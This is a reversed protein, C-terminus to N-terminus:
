LNTGFLPLGKEAIQQRLEDSIFFAPVQLDIARCHVAIVAMAEDRNRYKARTQFKGQGDAVRWKDQHKKINLWPDRTNIRTIDVQCDFTKGLRNLTHPLARDYYHRISPLPYGYRLEQIAGTPWAIGAFGNESAHILMLKAALAPWEKKFPANAVQGWASTDYGDRKGSQHWDSQLEEIFLLKRGAMDTRTTTRIHTLVNHDYFHAGFFVRQHDPLCILWERYDHGGFLTLHDFRTHPSTGSRIDFHERAHRDAALKADLSSGFFLPNHAPSADRNPVARGYPDLAFWYKNLAMHHDNHLTKVVGVRYNYCSDVYRQICLCGSDLRLAARYVAQHPMRRAMECFNLGGDAGWIQETSLELRIHRFSLHKLLQTKSVVKEAAQQQLYAHVGSWQIEERCVGHQMMNTLTAHWQAATARPQPLAQLRTRLLSFLHQPASYLKASIQPQNEILRRRVTEIVRQQDDQRIWRDLTVKDADPWDTADRVSELTYGSFEYDYETWGRRPTGGDDRYRYVVDVLMYLAQHPSAPGVGPQRLAHYKSRDTSIDIVKGSPLVLM